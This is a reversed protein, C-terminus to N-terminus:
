TSAKRRFVLASYWSSLLFLVFWAFFFVPPSIFGFSLTVAMSSSQLSVPESDSSESESSEDSSTDAQHRCKTKKRIPEEEEEEQEEETVIDEQAGVQDEVDQNNVDAPLVNAQPNFRPPLLEPAALQAPLRFHFSGDAGAVVEANTPDQALHAIVNGMYVGYGHHPPAPLGLAASVSALLVFPLGELPVENVLSNQATPAAM